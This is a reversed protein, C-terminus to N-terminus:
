RIFSSTGNRKDYEAEPMEYKEVRSVDSFENKIRYPDTDVVEASADAVRM